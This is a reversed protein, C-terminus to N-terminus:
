TISHERYARLTRHLLSDAALADQRDIGVVRWKKGPRVLQSVVQQRESGGLSYPGAKMVPSPSVGVGPVGGAVNAGGAPTCVYEKLRQLAQGASEPDGTSSM